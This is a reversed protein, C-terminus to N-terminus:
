LARPEPPDRLALARRFAERELRDLLDTLTETPDIDPESADPEPTQLDRRSM